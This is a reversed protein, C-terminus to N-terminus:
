RLFFYYFPFLSLIGFIMIIKTFTSAFHYDRKEEASIVLYSLAVFPIEFIALLNWFGIVKNGYFYTRLIWAIVVATIAILVLVAAKSWKIGALVPLTKCQTREDGDVDEMDKIIERIMSVAFAFGSYVLIYGINPYFNPEFLGVILLVMASLIAVIVNGILLRKKYYSSYMWLSGAVFLNLFGMVPKHIKFALYFGIIIGVASFVCFITKATQESIKKGIINKGPKNIEDVRVDFVDNIINGASAILLTALVLLLFNIKSLHEPFLETNAYETQYAPMILCYRVLAQSLAIIILNPLRILRLYSTM